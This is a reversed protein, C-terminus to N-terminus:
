LYKLSNILFAKTDYVEHTQPNLDRLCNLSMGLVLGVLLDPGGSLKELSLFLITLELSDM